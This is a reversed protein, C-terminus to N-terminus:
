TTCAKFILVCGATILMLIIAVISSERNDQTSM